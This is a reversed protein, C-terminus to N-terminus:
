LGGQINMFELVQDYFWKYEDSGGPTHYCVNLGPEIIYEVLDSFILNNLLDHLNDPPEILDSEFLNFVQYALNEHLDNSILLGEINHYLDDCLLPYRSLSEILDILETLQSESAASVNFLIDNYGYAGYELIYPPLIDGGPEHNQTIFQFNSYEVLGGTYDSHGVFPIHIYVGWTYIWSTIATNVKDTYVQYVGSGGPNITYPKVSENGVYYPTDGMILGKVWNNCETIDRQIIPTYDTM